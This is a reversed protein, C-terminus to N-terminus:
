TLFLDLDSINGELNHMLRMDGYHQCITLRVMTLCNSVTNKTIGKGKGSSYGKRKRKRQDHHYHQM